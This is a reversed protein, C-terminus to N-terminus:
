GHIPMPNRRLGAKSIDASLMPGGTLRAAGTLVYHLDANPKLDDVGPLLHSARGQQFQTPPAIPAARRHGITLTECRWLGCCMVRISSTARGAYEDVDWSV